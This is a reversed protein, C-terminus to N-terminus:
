FPLNNTIVIVDFSKQPKIYHTTTVNVVYITNLHHVQGSKCWVKSIAYRNQLSLTKLCHTGYTHETNGESKTELSEQTKPILMFITM